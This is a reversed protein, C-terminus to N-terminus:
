KVLKGHQHTKVYANVKAATYKGSGLVRQRAANFKKLYFDQLVAMLESEEQQTCAFDFMNVIKLQASNLATTRPM